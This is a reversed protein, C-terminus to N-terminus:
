NFKIQGVGLQIDEQDSEESSSMDLNANNAIEDEHELINELSIVENNNGSSNKSTEKEGLSDILDGSYNKQFKTRSNITSKPTNKTHVTIAKITVM